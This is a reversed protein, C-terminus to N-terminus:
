RRITIHIHEQRGGPRKVGRVVVTVDGHLVEHLHRLDGQPGDSAMKYISVIFVLLRIYTFLVGRRISHAVTSTKAQEEQVLSAVSRNRLLVM